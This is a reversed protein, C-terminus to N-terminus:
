IQLKCKDKYIFFFLNGGVNLLMYGVLRMLFKEEVSFFVIADNANLVSCDIIIINVANM